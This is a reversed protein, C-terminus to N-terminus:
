KHRGREADEESIVHVQVYYPIGYQQIVTEVQAISLFQGEIEGIKKRIKNLRRQFTRIPMEYIAALEKVKYPKVHFLFYKRKGEDLFEQSM